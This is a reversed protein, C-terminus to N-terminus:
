KKAKGDPFVGEIAMNARKKAAKWELLCPPYSRPLCPEPSICQLLKNQCYAKYGNYAHDSVYRFVVSM